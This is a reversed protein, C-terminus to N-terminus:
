FGESKKKRLAPLVEGLLLYLLFLQVLKSIAYLLYSGRGSFSFNGLDFYLSIPFYILLLLIRVVQTKSLRKLEM